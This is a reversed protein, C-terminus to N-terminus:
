AQLKQLGFPRWFRNPGSVGALPTRQSPEAPIFAPHLEVGDVGRGSPKLIQFYVYLKQLMVAPSLGATKKQAGAPRLSPSAWLVM